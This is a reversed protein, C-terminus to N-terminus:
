GQILFIAPEKPLTPTNKKWATITKTEIKEAASTIGLAVCLMTTGKCTQLLEALLQNNRYPTEIFIQTCNNKSSDLEINKVVQKLEPNKPPLYGNFTFRQGHLGSAMLALLISNPGIHPVVKVNHLHALAVIDSGPDAVAPCGAESVLGVTKNETFAKVIATADVGKHKDIVVFTCADIDIAKDISKLFRRATRLDEVVWFTISSIISHLYAPVTHLADEAIPIPILHLM